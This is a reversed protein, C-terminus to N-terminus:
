SQNSDQSLVIEADTSIHCLRNQSKQGASGRYKGILTVNALASMEPTLDDCKGIYQSVRVVSVRRDKWRNVDAM